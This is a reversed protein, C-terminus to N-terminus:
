QAKRGQSLLSNKEQAKLHKKRNSIKPWVTIIDEETCKSFQESPFLVKKIDGLVLILANWTHASCEFRSIKENSM